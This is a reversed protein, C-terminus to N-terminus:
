TFLKEDFDHNMALAARLEDNALKERWTKKMTEIM